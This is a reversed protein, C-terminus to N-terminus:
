CVCSSPCKDHASLLLLEAAVAAPGDETLPRQMGVAPSPCLRNHGSQALCPGTV